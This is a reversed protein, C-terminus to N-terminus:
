CSPTQHLPSTTAAVSDLMARFSENLAIACLHKGRESMAILTFGVGDGVRGFAVAIDDHLLHRHLVNRAHLADGPCTVAFPAVFVQQTSDTADDFAGREEWQAVTRDVCLTAEDVSAGDDFATLYIRRWLKRQEPRLKKETM